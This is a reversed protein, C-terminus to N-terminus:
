NVIELIWVDTFRPEYKAKLRDSEEAAEAKEPYSAIIVRFMDKENRALFANFGKGKMENMLATANTKNIFSGVVVSYKKLNDTDANDVAYVKETQVAAGSHKASPTKVVPEEEEMAEAVPM